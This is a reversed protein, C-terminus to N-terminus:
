GNKGEGLDYVVRCVAIWEEAWLADRWGLLEFYPRFWAEIAELLEAAVEGIDCLPSLYEATHPVALVKHDGDGRLLLGIPRVQYRCGPFSPGYGVVLVDVPEGDAPNRTGPLYGYEAPMPEEFAIGSSTWGREPEYVTRVTSGVPNEIVVQVLRSTDATM